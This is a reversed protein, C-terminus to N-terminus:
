LNKLFIVLFYLNAKKSFQELLNKPIFMYAKYKNTQISNDLLEPDIRNSVLKREKLGQFRRKNFLGNSSNSM